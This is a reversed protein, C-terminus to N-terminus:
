LPKPEIGLIVLPPPYPSECARVDVAFMQGRVWCNYALCDMPLPLVSICDLSPAEGARQLGPLTKLGAIRVEFILVPRPPSTNPELLAIACM